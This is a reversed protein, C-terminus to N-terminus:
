SDNKKTKYNKIFIILGGVLLITPLFLQEIPSDGKQIFRTVIDFKFYFTIVAYLIAILSFTKLTNIRKSM